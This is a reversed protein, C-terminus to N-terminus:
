PVTVIFNDYEIYYAEHARFGHKTNAALFSSSYTLECADDVYAKISSGSLVAKIVQTSKATYSITARSISSGGNIERIQFTGASTALGIRWYNNSDTARAAIGYCSTIGVNVIFTLKVTCDAKTSDLCSVCEGGASHVKNSAIWAESLMDAWSASVTNTPAVTHTHLHTGDPGTFADEIVTVVSSLPHLVPLRRSVRSHFAASMRIAFGV